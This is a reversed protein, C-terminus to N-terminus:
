DGGCHQCNSVRTRIRDPHEAAWLRLADASKSCVKVVGTRVWNRDAKFEVCDARHLRNYGPRDSALVFGDPNTALWRLFEDNDTPFFPSESTAMQKM